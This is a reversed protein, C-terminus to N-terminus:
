IALWQWAQSVHVLHGNQWSSGQASPAPLVSTVSGRAEQSKPRRRGRGPKSSGGCGRFQRGKWYSWSPKRRDGTSTEVGETPFPPHLHTLSNKHCKCPSKM